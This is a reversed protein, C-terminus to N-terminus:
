PSYSGFEESCSLAKRLSQCTPNTVFVSKFRTWLQNCGNSELENKIDQINGHQSAIRSHTTGNSVLSQTHTCNRGRTPAMELCSLYRKAAFVGRVVQFSGWTLWGTLLVGGVIVCGAMGIIGALQVQKECATAFAGSFNEGYALPIFFNRWAQRPGQEAPTRHALDASGSMAMIFHDMFQNPTTSFKQDNLQIEITNSDIEQFTFTAPHTDDGFQIKGDTTVNGSPLEQNLLQRLNKQFYAKAAPTKLQGEIEDLTKATLKRQRDYHALADRMAQIKMQDLAVERSHDASGLASISYVLTVLQALRHFVSSKM